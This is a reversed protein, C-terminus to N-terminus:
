ESVTSEPIPNDTAPNAREGAWETEKAAVDLALGRTEDIFLGFVAASVFGLLAFYGVVRMLGGLPVILAAIM